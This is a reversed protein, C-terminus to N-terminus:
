EGFWEVYAPEEVRDVFEDGFLRRAPGRRLCRIRLSRSIVWLTGVDHGVQPGISTRAASTATTLGRSRICFWYRKSHTLQAANIVLPASAPMTANNSRAPATISGHGGGRPSRANGRSSRDSM